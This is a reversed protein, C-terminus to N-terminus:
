SAALPFIVKWVWSFLTLSYNRQHAADSFLCNRKTHTYKKKIFIQKYILGVFYSECLLIHVATTKEKSILNQFKCGKNGLKLIGFLVYKVCCLLKRLFCTIIRKKIQKKFDKMEVMGFFMKKLIIM